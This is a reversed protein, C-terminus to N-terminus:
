FINMFTNVWIFFYKKCKGIYKYLIFIYSQKTFTVNTLKNVSIFFLDIKGSKCWVQISPGLINELRVDIYNIGILFLDIYKYLTMSSFYKDIYKYLILKGSNCWVQISPGLINELRVDIYNIGILFLDIYKYLTM